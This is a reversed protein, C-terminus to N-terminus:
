SKRSLHQICSILQESLGAPPIDVHLVSDQSGTSGSRCVIHSHCSQTLSLETCSCSFATLHDSSQPSARLVPAMPSFGCFPNDSSAFRGNVCTGCFTLSQPERSRAPSVRHASCFESIHNHVPVCYKWAFQVPLRHAPNACLTRM